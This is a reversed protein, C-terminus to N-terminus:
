RKEQKSEKGESSGEKEEERGSEACDMVEKGVSHLGSDM